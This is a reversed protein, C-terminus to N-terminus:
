ILQLLVPLPENGHEFDSTQLFFKKLFHLLGILPQITWWLCVHHCKIITTIGVRHIRPSSRITVSNNILQNPLPQQM